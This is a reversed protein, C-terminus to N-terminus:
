WEDDLSAWASFASVEALEGLKPFLPDDSSTTGESSPVAAADAGDRVRLEVGFYMQQGETVDLAGVDWMDRVTATRDANFGVFYFANGNIKRLEAFSMGIHVGHKGRWRSGADTVTISALHSREEDFFRVYARRTPDDAFLVAAGGYEAAEIKVNSEGFRLRLDAITTQESFGGPLVLAEGPSAAESTAHPVATAAPASPGAHQCACISLLAITSFLTKM